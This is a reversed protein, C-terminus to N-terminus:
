SRGLPIQVELVGMLRAVDPAARVRSVGQDVCPWPNQRATMRLGAGCVSTPLIRRWRGPLPKPLRVEFYDTVLEVGAPLRGGSALVVM